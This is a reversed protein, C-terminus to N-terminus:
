DLSVISFRFVYYRSNDGHQDGTLGSVYQLISAFFTFARTRYKCLICCRMRELEGQDKMLPQGKQTRKNFIKTRELRKKKYAKIRQEKEAKEKDRKEALEFAKQSRLAKREEVKTLKKDFQARNGRFDKYAMKKVKTKTQLKQKVKLRPNRNNVMKYKLKIKFYLLELTETINVFNKKRKKWCNM